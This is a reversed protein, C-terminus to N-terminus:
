ERWILEVIKEGFKRAAWPWSATIINNDVEVDKWTYIWWNKTIEAIQVWNSDWWTVKKGKLIGSYSIITPAICIAWINKAELALKYYDNNWIFDNYAWWWGIFLIAEYQNAVVEKLAFDCETSELGDWSICTWRNLSATEAKYWSQELISRPINYELRQYGSQSIILLVKKM